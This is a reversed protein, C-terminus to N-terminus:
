CEVNMLRLDMGEETAGPRKLPAVVSKDYARFLLGILLLKGGHM